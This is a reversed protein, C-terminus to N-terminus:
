KFFTTFSEPLVLISYFTTSMSFLKGSLIVFDNFITKQAEDGRVSYVDVHEGQREQVIQYKSGIVQERACTPLTDAYAAYEFGNVILHNM